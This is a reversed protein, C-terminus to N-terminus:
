TAMWALNLKVMLVDDETARVHGYGEQENEPIARTAHHCRLHEGSSAQRKAELSWGYKEATAIAYSLDNANECEVSRWRVLGSPAREPGEMRYWYTWDNM